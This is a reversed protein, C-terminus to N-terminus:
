FRVVAFKRRLQLVTADPDVLVSKPEFPCHIKVEQSEGAGLTVTTRAEQYDAAPKGDDGYRDGRVAAVEVPMKGTGANEVRVTVEWTGNSVSDGAAHTVRAESLRYEPVVVEFFWQKVFADYAAADPAFPRMTAIFDQLVPFDPGNHYKEIFARIGKLAQERGMHRLLMWFVWGGKDYTVTTDGDRDGDIKVLPRESDKRRDRDYREEIRRCFEMRSRPGKVQEALLITSFHAMGEALINGGPGKGPTLINGWWQHASEHATVIFAVEAKPDSKTLFGIGESFTINTPFGQAYSALNPFESLKLEKWPYPYFWESYWRRAGNLAEGMEEINYGHQPHYYIATGDGHWVAWRGAVVNFLRVPHDSKWVVTRRGDAVTDSELVGVSNVTFDAPATVRVNTTFSDGAGIIPETIGEYFDDPYDRGQYRNDKEIGIDALYGPIPLFSPTFCTLVVSSPLIFEEKRKGNESIGKPFTGEYSFGVRFRGGHPVAAPPAFVFMRAHEAPQYEKGDLTWQINEWHGGGTFVFRSVPKDRHNLMDYTGRIKFRRQAPELDLDIDIATVAPQPEDKWTALNARWYDKQQKKAVTGEYGAYVEAWLWVGAALPVAAYPLLRLGSKVLALPYFRAFTRGPDREARRFTRVAIVTFLVALGLVMVRNLVLARRDIEFVGMDSWRLVGWLDWNGVWNMRDTLQRYGTFSLAALGVGYTAYRNGTVALVMTVFATWALFTPTLLLGWVLGFPWFQIGVRGQVLLVVLCGALAALLIAVGVVSNALAKGFLLASTRLPTTYEISALRTLREREVSEVTYFLLLLCVLLTLTNMSGVALTGSTVLLPTEFAGTAIMNTGITQLLILPVFLYLGPQSRLERLEVRAALYLGRFFSPVRSRMALSALAAAPQPSAIREAAPALTRVGAGRRSGRLTAAFHLHSFAVGALGLLVMVWRSALFAPDFEIRAHNYFEVGRDSKLWTETLWRFGSPDLLMLAESIKPYEIGLWTPSWEWLFFGCFLLMAVPLVFLLIPKRTVEGAAFCLGTVFIVSPLVLVFAPRLYNMLSFPGCIEKYREGPLAHIFIMMAALHVALVGLFTLLAALFKGWVYEGATLPTAHLLEGVKLEEDRIVALGATVAIFFPYLLFTVVCLVQAAAFESSIWAKVGGVESDGSAVIRVNGTSLGWSILGVVLILIWLLPRRFYQGCELRFVRFLRSFSM